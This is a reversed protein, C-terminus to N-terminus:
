ESRGMRARSAREAESVKPAVLRQCSIATGFGFAHRTMAIHAVAGEVPRRDADHREISLPAKRHTEIRGAAEARWQADAEM